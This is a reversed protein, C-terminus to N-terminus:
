LSSKIIRYDSSEDEEREFLVFERLRCGLVSESLCDTEAAKADEILLDAHAIRGHDSYVISHRETSPMRAMFTEPLENQLFGSLKIVRTETHQFAVGNRATSNHWSCLPMLYSDGGFPVQGDSNPTMHGGVSFDPHSGESDPQNTVYCNGDIGHAKLLARWSLGDIKPDPSSGDVNYLEGYFDVVEASTSRITAGGFDEVFRALRTLPDNQLDSLRM